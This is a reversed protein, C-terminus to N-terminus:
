SRAVGTFRRGIPGPGQDRQRGGPQVAGAVARVLWANLSVGEQAAAREARVKLGEPLRLSIRATGGDDTDEEGPGSPGPEPPPLPSQAATVVVQPDRGHMRIEVSGAGWITTVEDAMATMADVLCLRASPDLAGALLRATERTRDDGAAAAAQLDHRLAEIYGTLEM